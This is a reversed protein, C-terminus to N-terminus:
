VTLISYVNDCTVIDDNKMLDSLSVNNIITSLAYQCFELAEIHEKVDKYNSHGYILISPNNMIYGVKYFKDIRPYTNVDVSIIKDGVAEICIFHCKGIKFFKKM